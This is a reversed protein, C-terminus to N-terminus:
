KIGREALTLAAKVLDDFCPYDDIFLFNVRKDRRFWTLQRKAYNRTKMKLNEACEELSLEGDLFPRLEKYGIAQVATSSPNGKYFERAEQLLGKELMLDVRSNIKEYLFNRDRADLGITTLNYPSPTLRSLAEQETKTKGTIHHIELARIIRGLNNEHLVEASDPDIERLVQLLYAPSKEQATKRLKVRYEYDTDEEAFSINDVLSSYYLGTGGALVPLKGRKHVDSIIKKADECYTAVSYTDTIKVFGILHHPIGQTEEVTPKATAIDMGRYIQMSDCSIVEGNLKKCIEVALKTKGSATPGVVAVLPIKFEAM